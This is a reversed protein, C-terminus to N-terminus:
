NQSIESPICRDQSIFADVDHIEQDDHRDSRRKKWYSKLDKATAVVAPDSFYILGQIGGLAFTTILYQDGEDNLDLTETILVVGFVRTILLVLVYLVCRLAVKRHIASCPPQSSEKEQHSSMLNQTQTAEQCTTQIKQQSAVNTLWDKKVRLAIITGFFLIACLVFVGVRWWWYYQWVFSARRAIDDHIDLRGFKIALANTPKWIGHLLQSYAGALIVM